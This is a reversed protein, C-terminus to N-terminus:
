EESEKAEKAAKRAARKEQALKKKEEKSLKKEYLGPVDAPVDESPGGPRPKSSPPSSGIELSEPMQAAVGQAGGAWGLMRSDCFMGESQVGGVTTKQIIMEEGEENVVTSGIPAVALRSGERVNTAATVVTLITGIDVQCAKLNKGGCAELSRVVGVKYQSTDPMTPCLLTVGVLLQLRVVVSLSWRPDQPRHLIKM